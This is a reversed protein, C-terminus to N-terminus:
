AQRRRRALLGIAGLGLLGMSTPEPVPLPFVFLYPAGKEAAVNMTVNAEVPGATHPLVVLGVLAGKGGNGGIGTTDPTPNFGVVRFAKVAAYNVTPDTNTVGDGDPDSDSGPPNIQVVNFGSAGGARFFSGVTTTNTTATGVAMTKGIVDADNVADSGGDLDTFKFKMNSNSVTSDVTIDISQIGTAGTETGDATLKAFVRFIDFGALAGTGSAQEVVPVITANASLTSLALAAFGGILKTKLKM